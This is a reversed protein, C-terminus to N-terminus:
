KKSEHTMIPHQSISATLDFRLNMQDRTAGLVKVGNGGCNQHLILRGAGEFSMSNIARGDMGGKQVKFPRKPEHM